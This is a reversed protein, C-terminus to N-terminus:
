FIPRRPHHGKKPNPDAGVKFVPGFFQDGLKLEGQDLARCIIKWDRDNFGSCLLGCDECDEDGEAPKYNEPCKLDIYLWRKQPNPSIYVDYRGTCPLISGDDYGRVRKGKPYEVFIGSALKWGKLDDPTLKIHFAYGRCIVGLRKINAIIIRTADGIRERVMKCPPKCILEPQEPPTKEGEAAQVQVLQYNNISTPQVPREEGPFFPHQVVFREYVYAAPQNEGSSYSPQQDSSYSPTPSSDPSSSTYGGYGSMYGPSPQQQQQQQETGSGTVVTVTASSNSSSSSSSSSTTANNNNLVLWNGNSGKRCKDPNKKCYDDDPPKKCKDPYKKCFDEPPDHRCKDPHHKCLDDGKCKSPNKKCDDEPPKKCKDPHHKCLDDGKCKSPNKKCDDEPPKKCKDGPPDPKKCKGTRCSSGGDNKDTSKKGAVQQNPKNAGTGIGLNKLTQPSVTQTPTKPAM